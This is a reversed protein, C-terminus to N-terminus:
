PVCNSELVPFDGWMNKGQYTLQFNPKEKIEQNNGTNISGNQYKQNTGQLMVEKYTPWNLWTKQHYKPLIESNKVMEM